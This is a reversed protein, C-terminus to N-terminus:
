EGLWRLANVLLQQECGAPAVEADGPGLGTAMGWAVYCGERVEGAVVVANGQTDAVVATGAEGPQLIIHDYYSHAFDEGLGAGETLPHQAIVTLGTERLRDGGVAVEPFLPEYGRVGVADHTALVGGGGRVFDRLAEVAEATVTGPGDRLQALVVADCPVLFEPTMQHVPLAEIGDVTGLAAVIGKTGYGGPVVGIHLGDTEFRPPALRALLKAHQEPTL